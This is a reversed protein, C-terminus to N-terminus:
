ETRAYQYLIKGEANVFTLLLETETASCLSFGTEPSAFLAGDFPTVIRSKSASSNVIYDIDSGAVRIHQFNHIHGSVYFDVDHRDLLPRLRTQLDAYEREEKTTGAYIPHHGMVVKWKADSGALTAEIWALQEEMSQSGADPFMRPDDRYKDILTPTDILVVLLEVGDDVEETIAYYRAPMEWRRSVTSYDLVPQTWGRYEHNGLVPHWPIMLEPHTYIWEFNTNWLPDRTSRVGWFHHVDGLAAIFEPGTIDAVSGMMEAVPVQDYYGNRGLDSAIMFTFLDDLQALKQADEPFVPQRPHQGAAQQTAALLLIAASALLNRLARSPM